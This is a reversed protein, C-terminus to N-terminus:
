DEMFYSNIANKIYEMNNAIEFSILSIQFGGAQEDLLFTWGYQNLWKDLEDQPFYISNGSFRCLWSWKKYDGCPPKLEHEFGYHPSRALIVEINCYTAFEQKEVELDTSSLGKKILEKAEEFLVDKLYRGDDNVSFHKNYIEIASTIEKEM